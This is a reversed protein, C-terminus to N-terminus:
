IRMDFTIIGLFGNWAIITREESRQLFFAFVIAQVIWLGYYDANLLLKLLLNSPISRDVIM